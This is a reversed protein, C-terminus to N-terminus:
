AGYQALSKECVTLAAASTRLIYGSFQTMPNDIMAAQARFGAAIDRAIANNATSLEEITGVEKTFADGAKIILDKAKDRNVYGQAYKAVLDAVGIVSDCIGIINSLSLTSVTASGSVDREKDTFSELGGRLSAIAGMVSKVDNQTYKKWSVFVRVGGMLEEGGFAEESDSHRKDDKIPNGVSRIDHMTKDNKFQGIATTFTADDKFTLKEIDAAYKEANDLTVKSTTAFIKEAQAKVKDYAAAINPLKGAIHLQALVGGLDFKTEKATGTAKQAQAKLAEARKSLRPAAAYNKLWYDKLKIRMKQIQEKIWNWVKLVLEKIGEMSVTTSSVRSAVGGFSEVSAVPAKAFGLRSTYANVARQMMVAGKADLGGDKVFAQLDNAIAELGTAVDQAESIAAENEAVEAETAQVDLLGAELSDAGGQLPLTTDDECGRSEMSAQFATGLNAYKMVM